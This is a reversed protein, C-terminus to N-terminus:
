LTSNHALTRTTGVGQRAKGERGKYIPHVSINYTTTPQLRGMLTSTSTRPIKLITEKGGGIPFYKLRYHLLKGPAPTWSVRMSRETEDKVTLKKGAPSASLLFVHKIWHPRLM